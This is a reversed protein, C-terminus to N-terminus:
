SAQAALVGDGAEVTDLNTWVNQVDDYEEVAEILRLAKAEQGADGAAIWSQPIMALQAVELPV